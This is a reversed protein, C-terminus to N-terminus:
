IHLSSLGPGLLREPIKDVFHYLRPRPCRRPRLRPRQRCVLTIFFHKEREQPLYVSIDGRLFLTARPRSKIDCTIIDCLGCFSVYNVFLAIWGFYIQLAQFSDKGTVERFPFVKIVRLFYGWEKLMAFKSRWIYLYFISVPLTVSKVPIKKVQRSMASLCQSVPNVASLATKVGFFM